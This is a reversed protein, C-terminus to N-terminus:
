RAAIPPAGSRCRGAASSPRSAFCITVARTSPTAGRRDAARLATMLRRRARGRVAHRRRVARTAVVRRPDARARVAAGRPGVLQRGGNDDRVGRIRCTGATVAVAVCRGSRRRRAGARRHGVPVRQRAPRRARADPRRGFLQVALRLRAACILEDASAPVADPRLSTLYQYALPYGILPNDIAYTRRASRASPRRCAASRSTSSARGDLAPHAPVARRSHPGPGVTQRRRGRAARSSHSGAKVPRVDVDVGLRILHLASREYDTYNFYGADDPAVTATIEGGLTIM